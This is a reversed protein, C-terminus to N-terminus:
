IVTSALLAHPPLFPNTIGIAVELSTQLPRRAQIKNAQKGAQQPSAKATMDSHSSMYVLSLRSTLRCAKPSSYPFRITEDEASDEGSRPSYTRHFIKPRYFATFGQILGPALRIFGWGKQWNLWFSLSFLYCQNHHNVKPAKLTKEVSRREEPYGKAQLYYSLSVM